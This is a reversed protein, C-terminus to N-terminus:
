CKSSKKVVTEDVGFGIYLPTQSYKRVNEIIKIFGRKDVVQLELMLLGYLYIKLM